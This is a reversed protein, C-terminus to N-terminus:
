PDSSPPRLGTQNLVLRPHGPLATHGPTWQPLPEAQPVNDRTTWPGPSVYYLCEAARPLQLWIPESSSPSAPPCTWTEFAQSGPRLSAGDLGTEWHQSAGQVSPNGCELM